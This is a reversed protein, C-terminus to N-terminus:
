AASAGRDRRPLFASLAVSGAVVAGAAIAVPATVLETAIILVTLVFMVTTAVAFGAWQPLRWAYGTHLLGWPSTQASLAIVVLILGAMNVGWAAAPLLVFACALGFYVGLAITTVRVPASLPAPAESDEEGPASRARLLVGLPRIGFIVLTAAAALFAIWWPYGSGAIGWIFLGVLMVLFFGIAAWQRATTRLRRRFRESTGAILSSAVIVPPLMLTMTTGGFASAGGEISGTFVFVGMYSAMMVTFALQLIAHGRSVDGARARISAVDRLAQRQDISESEMHFTHAM